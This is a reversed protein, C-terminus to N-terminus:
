TVREPYTIVGTTQQGARNALQNAGRALDRLYMLYRQGVQVHLRPEDRDRFGISRDDLQRQESAVQM